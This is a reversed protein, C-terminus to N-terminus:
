CFIANFWDRISGTSVSILESTDLNQPALQTCIGWSKYYRYNLPIGHSPLLIFGKLPLAILFGKLFYFVAM